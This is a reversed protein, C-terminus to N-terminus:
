GPQGLPPRDDNPLHVRRLARSSQTTVGTRSNRRPHRPQPRLRHHPHSRRRVDGARCRSRDSPGRDRTREGGPYEQILYSTGNSYIGADNGPTVGFPWSAGEITTWALTPADAPPIDSLDDFLLPRGVVALGVLAVLLAALLFMWALGLGSRAVGVGAFSGGPGALWAILGRRQPGASVQEALQDLGSMAPAEDAFADLAAGLRSEFRDPDTM